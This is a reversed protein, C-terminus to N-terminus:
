APQSVRRARSFNQLLSISWFMVGITFGALVVLLTATQLHPPTATNAEIILTQVAAMFCLTMTGFWFARRLLYTLTLGPVATFSGEDPLILLSPAFRMVVFLVVFLAPFIFGVGGMLWLFSTRDTWGNPHGSADFHSAVRLPLAHASVALLVAFGIVLAVM